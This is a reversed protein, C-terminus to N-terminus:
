ISRTSALMVVGKWRAASITPAPCPRLAASARRSPARRSAPRRQGRAVDVLDGVDGLLGARRGVGAVGGVGRRHPPQERLRLELM